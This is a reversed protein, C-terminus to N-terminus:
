WLAELVDGLRGAAIAGGGAARHHILLPADDNGDYRADAEANLLARLYWCVTATTSVSIGIFPRVHKWRTLALWEAPRGTSVGARRPLRLVVVAAAGIPTDAELDALWTPFATECLDPAGASVSPRWSRDKVDITIGPVGAIDGPQRTGDHRLRARTTRAEPYGVTRLWRCLQLEAEHGKRRAKRGKASRDPEVATM